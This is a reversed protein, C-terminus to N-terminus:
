FDKWTGPLRSADIPLSNITQMGGAGDGVGHIELNANMKNVGGNAGISGYITVSGWGNM